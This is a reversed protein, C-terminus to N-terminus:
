FPNRAEQWTNTKLDFEAILAFVSFGNGIYSANTQKCFIGIGEYTNDEETVQLYKLEFIDDKFPNKQIYREVHWCAETFAHCDGEAIVDNYMLRSNPIAKFEWGFDYAVREEKYLSKYAAGLKKAKRLTGSGHNEIFEDETMTRVKLLNEPFGEPIKMDVIKTQGSM